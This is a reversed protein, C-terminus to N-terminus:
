SAESAAVKDALTPAGEEAPTLAVCREATSASGRPAHFLVLDMTLGGIEVLAGCNECIYPTVGASEGRIKVLDHGTQNPFTEYDFM